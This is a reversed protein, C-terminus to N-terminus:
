IRSSCLPHYQIEKDQVGAPQLGAEKKGVYEWQQRLMKMPWPCREAYVMENWNPGRSKSAPFIKGGGKKVRERLKRWDSKPRRASKRQAKGWIELKNTRGYAIAQPLPSLKVTTKKGRAYDGLETPRDARFKARHKYTHKIKYNKPVLFM